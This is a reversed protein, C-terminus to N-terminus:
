INGGRPSSSGDRDPWGRKHDAVSNARDPARGPYAPRAAADSGSVATAWPHDGRQRAVGAVTIRSLDIALGGSRALFPRDIKLWRPTCSKPLRRDSVVIDAAACARNMEAIAVLYPSRTALLRWRRGGRVIEVACLDTGCRAEPLDDLAAADGSFGSIEGLTSRVYDGARPRLLYLGGAAGRIAVHRGDNTILIDAPPTVLAWAVGATLPVLGLRRLRTRWLGLWLGGGMM